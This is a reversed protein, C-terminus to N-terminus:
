LRFVLIILFVALHHYYLIIVNPRVESQRGPRVGCLKVQKCLDCTASPVKPVDDWRFGREKACSECLTLQLAYHPYCSTTQGCGTCDKATPSEKTDGKSPLHREQACSECYYDPNDVHFFLTKCGDRVKPYHNNKLVTQSELYGTTIGTTRGRKILMAHHDLNTLKVPNCGDKKKAYLRKMKNKFETVESDELKALAADVFCPGEEENVQVHGKYGVLYTAIKRPPERYIELFNEKYKKLCDKCECKLRVGLECFREVDNLEYYEDTMDCCKVFERNVEEKTLQNVHEYKEDLSNMVDELDTQIGLPSKDIYEWASSRLNLVHDPLSPQVITANADGEAGEMVHDCSLM